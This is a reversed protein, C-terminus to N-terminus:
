FMDLWLFDGLIRADFRDDYRGEVFFATMSPSGEM